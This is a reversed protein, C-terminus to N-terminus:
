HKKINQWDKKITKMIEEAMKTDNKRDKKM